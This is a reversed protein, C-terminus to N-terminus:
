NGESPIRKLAKLKRFKKYLPTSVTQATKVSKIQMNEVFSCIENTEEDLTENIISNNECEIDANFSSSFDIDSKKSLFNFVPIFYETECNPIRINNVILGEKLEKLDFYLWRGILCYNFANELCYLWSQSDNFKKHKFRVLNM